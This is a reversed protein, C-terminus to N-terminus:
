RIHRAEAVIADAAWAPQASRRRLFQACGRIGTLPTFFEHEIM